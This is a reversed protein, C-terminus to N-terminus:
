DWFNVSKTIIGMSGKTVPFRFPLEDCSSWGIARAVRIWAFFATGVSSSVRLPVRADTAVAADVAVGIKPLMPAVGVEPLVPSGGPLAVEPPRPHRV